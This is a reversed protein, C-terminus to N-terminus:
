MSLTEFHEPLVKCMRLGDIAALFKDADPGTQRLVQSLRCSVNFSRYADLGHKELHSVAVDSFLPQGGVPLLQYFDGALIASLGGLWEDREMIDRLRLDVFGLIALSVMSKEDILLYKCNSFRIALEKYIDSKRDLKKYKRPLSPPIRLAAHLTMGNIKSAAFAASATVVVTARRRLHAILVGFCYTKGTGAGGDVNMRLPPEGDKHEIFKDYIKRQEPNLSDPDVEVSSQPPSYGAKADDLWTEPIPVHGIHRSWDYAVDQPRSGLATHSQEHGALQAALSQWDADDEVPSYYDTEHFHNSLCMQYAEAYTKFEHKGITKLDKASRFPHHLTLKARYYEESQAGDPSYKPLFLTIRPKGDTLRKWKDPAGKHLYERAITLLPVNELSDVRSTYRVTLGGATKQKDDELPRCDVSQFVRSSGVLPLLLLMHSAEEDCVDRRSSFRRILSAFITEKSGSVIPGETKMIENYSETASQPKSCYSEIDCDARKSNVYPHTNINALWAMILASNFGAM